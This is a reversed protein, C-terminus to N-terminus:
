SVEEYGIEVGNWCFGDLMVNQVFSERFDANLFECFCKGLAQMIATVGRGSRRYFCGARTPVWGARLAQQVGATFFYRYKAGAGSWGPSGAFFGYVHDPELKLCIEAIIEALGADRWYRATRGSMVAEYTHCPEFADLLGYGASIIFLRMRGSCLLNEAADVLGEVSYFHGTYLYLASTKKSATEVCGKMGQRARELRRYTEELVSDPQFCPIATKGTDEKAKCCPIFCVVPVSM